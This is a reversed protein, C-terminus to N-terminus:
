SNQGYLLASVEGCVAYIGNGDKAGSAGTTLVVAGCGTAPNYSILNYVGYASGTHYYLEDQGYTNTRYRLPQCQYFGGTVPISGHEEMASVVAPPIYQVGDYQGDNALLAVVKGLDYASITLGGAFSAGTTGPIGSSTNRALYQYSLGVSGDARYVEALKGQDSIDGSRFAADMSLPGYLYKHLLEDLTRQGAREVAVGLVAFAYNNYAWNGINGSIVSRTGGASLRSRIANYSYSVDDGAVSLSSTHTLVSRVTIRDDARAKRISFGLYDGIDADLNMVGEEASLHVALGVLVKSISAVRLKSDATMPTKGKVASGYAYTDFVKGDRIYAVSLSDTGYRAAIKDIERQIARHEETDQVVASASVSTNLKAAEPGNMWEYFNQTAQVAQARTLPSSGAFKGGSQVSLLGAQLCWKVDNRDSASLGSVDSCALFRASSTPATDYGLSRAAGALLVATQQRTLGDGPHFTADDYGSVLGSKGAWSVSDYYWTGAPVDTYVPSETWATGPGLLNALMVTLMAKTVPTNQRFEGYLPINKLVGAKECWSLAQYYGDTEAVDRYVDAATQEPEAIPTESEPVATSSIPQADARTKEAAAAHSFIGCASVAFFALSFGAIAAAQWWSRRKNMNSHREKERFDSTHM